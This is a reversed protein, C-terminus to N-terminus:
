PLLKTALVLWHQCTPLRVLRTTALILISRSLTYTPIKTYDLGAGPLDHWIM